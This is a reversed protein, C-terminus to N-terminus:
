KTNRFSDKLDFGHSLIKEKNTMTDVLPKPKSLWNSLNIWMTEAPIIKGFGFDQLVPFKHGEVKTDLNRDSHRYVIIPCNFRDNVDYNKDTFKFYIYRDRSWKDDGNKKDYKYTDDDELRHWSKEIKESVAKIADGFLLSKTKPLYLCEILKDCIFFCIKEPENWYSEFTPKYFDTRDLVLKEDVGYVGQLYDYYDKVRSIIKM